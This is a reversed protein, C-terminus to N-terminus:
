RKRSSRSNLSTRYKVKVGLKKLESALHKDLNDDEVYFPDYVYGSLESPKIMHHATLLQFFRLDPKLTWLLGLKYLIDGIRKPDRM